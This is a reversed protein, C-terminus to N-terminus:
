GNNKVANCRQILDECHQFYIGRYSFAALYSAEFQAHEAIVKGNLVANLPQIVVQGDEEDTLAVELPCELFVGKDVTGQESPNLVFLQGAKTGKPATVKIRTLPTAEWKLIDGVQLAKTKTTM